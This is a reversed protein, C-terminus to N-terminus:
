AAVRRNHGPAFRRRVLQGCGCGCPRDAPVYRKKSKKAKARESLSVVVAEQVFGEVECPFCGCPYDHPWVGDPSPCPDWPQREHRCEMCVDWAPAPQWGLGSGM